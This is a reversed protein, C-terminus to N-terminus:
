KGGRTMPAFAHVAGYVIVVRLVCEGVSHTEQWGGIAAWTACAAAVLDTLTMWGRWSRRSAKSKSPKTKVVTTVTAM